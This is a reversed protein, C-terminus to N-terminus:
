LSPEKEYQRLSGDSNLPGIEPKFYDTDSISRKKRLYIEKTTTTTPTTQSQYRTTRNQYASAGRRIGDSYAGIGENIGNSIQSAMAALRRNYAEQELMQQQRLLLTVEKGLEIDASLNPHDTPRKITINWNTFGDFVGCLNLPDPSTASAGSVWTARIPSVKYCGTNPDASEPTVQNYSFTTPAYQIYGGADTVEAGPPDTYINLTPTPAACASLGASIVAMVILQLKGTVM